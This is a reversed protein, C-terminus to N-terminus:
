RLVQIKPDTCLKALRTLENSLGVLFPMNANDYALVHTFFRYIGIHASVSKAVVILDSRSNGSDADAFKQLDAALSQSLSHM